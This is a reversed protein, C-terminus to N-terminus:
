IQEWADDDDPDPLEEDPVITDDVKEEDFLTESPSEPGSPSPQGVGGVQEQGTVRPYPWATAGWSGQPSYYYVLNDNVVAYLERNRDYVVRENTDIAVDVVDVLSDLELQHDGIWMPITGRSIWEAYRQRHVALRAEEVDIDSRRYVFVALGFSLVSLTALGGILTTNAPEEVTIDATQTHTEETSPSEALWYARDTLFLDTEMTPEDPSREYWATGDSEVHVTVELTTQVTGVGATAEELENRRDAIESVNLTTETTATGDEVTATTRDRYATETYFVNDNEHVAEYRVVTDHVVTVGDDPANTTGELTLEPTANLMYVPSNELSESANWLNGGSVVASTHVDTAFREEGIEETVTRESPTAVAWGTGAAALLGLLVFVVLLVRGNRAIVLDLRPNDIM